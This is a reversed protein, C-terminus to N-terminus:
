SAPTATSAAATSVCISCYVSVCTSCYICCCHQRLNLLSAPTSFCGIPLCSCRYVPYFLPLGARKTTYRAEIYLMQHWLLFFYIIYYAMVKEWWPPYDHWTLYSKVAMDSKDPLSPLWTLDSIVQCDHRVQRVPLAPMHSKDLLSPLWTLDSIVQCDHRVQRVPLTTMLWTLDSIVQCDHSVQIAPLTTMDLRIHSSLWTQSTQCPLTTM